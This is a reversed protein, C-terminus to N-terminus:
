VHLLDASGSSAFVLKVACDAKDKGLATLFLALKEKMQQWQDM